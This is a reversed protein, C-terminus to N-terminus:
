SNKLMTINSLYFLFIKGKNKNYKKTHCIRPLYNVLSYIQFIIPGSWSSPQRSNLTSDTSKDSGLSFFLNCNIFEVGSLDFQVHILKTKGRINELKHKSHNGRSSRLWLAMMPLQFSPLTAKETAEADHEPDNDQQSTFNRGPKLKKAFQIM